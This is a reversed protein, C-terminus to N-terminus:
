YNQRAIIAFPLALTAGFTAAVPSGLAVGMFMFVGPVIAVTPRAVSLVMYFTAIILAMPYLAGVHPVSWPMVVGLAAMGAGLLVADTTEKKM